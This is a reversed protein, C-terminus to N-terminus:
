VKSVCLPAGFDRGGSLTIGWPRGGSLHITRTAM